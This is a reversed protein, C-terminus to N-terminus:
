AATQPDPPALFDSLYSDFDPNSYGFLNTGLPVPSLDNLGYFLNFLWTPVSGSAQSDIFIDFAYTHMALNFDLDSMPLSIIPLGIAQMNKAFLDAAAVDAPQGLRSYIFM